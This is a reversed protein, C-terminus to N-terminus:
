IVRSMWSPLVVLGEMEDHTENWLLKQVRQGEESKVFDCPEAVSMDELFRGHSESGVVVGANLAIWGAREPSRARIAKVMNMPIRLYVPLVDSMGTNVMGPCFNNIIVKNATYHKALEMQFLVCLLKSDGYRAFTPIGEAEDFHKLLGEDKTLPLKAILSTQKHARSGTWTVRTPRGTRSATDELTPLLALTLLVNSLYNVQINKEHGNSAFERGLTGIGANLMLLHLDTFQAKFSSAFDQVSPYNETDLKMVKITANPNTSGVAPDSILSQRVTEGKSVNRVALILNSVGFKLLQLSIELGIGATAGTVVATKGSLDIGSPLPPVPPQIFPM